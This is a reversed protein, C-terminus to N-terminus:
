PLLLGDSLRVRNEPPTEKRKSGVEENANAGWGKKANQPCTRQTQVGGKRNSGVRQSHVGSAKIQTRVASGKRISRLIRQLLFATKAVAIGNIVVQRKM